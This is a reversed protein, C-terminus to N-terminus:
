LCTLVSFRSKGPMIFFLYFKAKLFLHNHIMQYSLIRMLTDLQSNYGLTPKWM